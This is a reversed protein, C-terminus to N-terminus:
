RAHLGMQVLCWGAITLGRLARLARNCHTHGVYMYYNGCGSGPESFLHAHVNELSLRHLSIEELAGTFGQVVKAGPNTPLSAAGFIIDTTGVTLPLSGHAIGEPTPMTCQFDYAVLCTFLKIVGGAHTAKVFYTQNAATSSRRRLDTTGRAVAWGSAFHVHWELTGNQVMQLLWEGPKTMITQPYAAMSAPSSSGINKSSADAPMTSLPHLVAQFTFESSINPYFHNYTFNFISSEPYLCPTSANAASDLHCNGCARIGGCPVHRVVGHSRVGDFLVAGGSRYRGLTSWSTDVLEINTANPCGIMPTSHCGPGKGKDLCEGGKMEHCEWLAADNAYVWTMPTM